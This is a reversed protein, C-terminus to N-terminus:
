ERASKGACIELVKKEDSTVLHHGVHKGYARDCCTRGRTDPFLAYCTKPDGDKVTYLPHMLIATTLLLAKM